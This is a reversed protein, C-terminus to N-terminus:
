ALLKVILCYKIIGLQELFDSRTKEYSTSNMNEDFIEGLDMWMIFVDECIGKFTNKQRGTM